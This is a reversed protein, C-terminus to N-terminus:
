RRPRIRFWQSQKGKTFDVYVKLGDRTMVTAPDVPTIDEGKPISIEVKGKQAHVFLFNGDTYIVEKNKTWIHAGGKEFLKTLVSISTGFDGLFISTYNDVSKRATSIKQGDLYRGLSQVQPDDVVLRPSVINEGGWQWTLNALEGEGRSGLKGDQVALRIGTVRSCRNVDAGSPGVYGPAFQWIATAKGRNLRSHIAEIEKDTLYFSNAFVYVKCPPVLGNIFDDLFYYGVAAGSKACDNRFQPLSYFFVDWFSKVYFVSREDAIIAVEPRYPKPNNYVEHYLVSTEKQMRWLRDDKYAGGAILDMWWTGARHIVLQALDRELVALTEDMNSTARYAGYIDLPLWAPVKADQGILHTRTDNENIWIKGHAAVSDLAAMSSGSGGSRRESMQLYSLPGALMDIDSSNLIRHQANHGSINAALDFIYGNFFLTLKKRNTEQKVLKAADIIRDAVIDSAYESFDVWNQDKPIKEFVKVTEQKKEFDSHIPFSGAPAHPIVATDLTVKKDGWASALAENTKYKNKLWARFHKQNVESYDPGKERYSEHFWETTNQAGVHYALMRKGYPSAEYHRIMRALSIKFKEWFYDSAVSPMSRSGDAYLIREDKPADKWGKWNNWPEVWIRPIFMAQPDAKIYQDLISDAETFDDGNEVWPWSTFPMSYIHVGAKSSMKVQSTLNSINKEPDVGGNFFLILPLVPSDNIM